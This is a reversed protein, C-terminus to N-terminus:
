GAMIGSPSKEPVPSLAKSRDNGGFSMKGTGSFASTLTTLTRCLECCAVPKTANEPLRACGFYLTWDRDYPSEYGSPQQFPGEGGRGSSGFAANDKDALWEYMSM